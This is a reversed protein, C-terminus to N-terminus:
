QLILKISNGTEPAEFIVQRTVPKISDYITNYQVEIELTRSSYITSKACKLNNDLVIIGGPPLTSNMIAGLPEKRTEKVFGAGTERDVEVWEHTVLYPFVKVNIAPTIGYNKLKIVVRNTGFTGTVSHDEYLVLAQTQEHGIKTQDDAMKRTVKLADQTATLTQGVLYVAYVSVLVGLTGSWGQLWDPAKEIQSLGLVGSFLAVIFGVIAGGFVGVAIGQRM